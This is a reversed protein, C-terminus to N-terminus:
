ATKRRLSNRTSAVRAAPKRPVNIAEEVAYTKWLPNCENIKHALANCEAVDKASGQESLARGLQVLALVMMFHEKHSLLVTAEDPSFM